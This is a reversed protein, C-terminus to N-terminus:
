GGTGLDTGADLPGWDCPLRCSGIICLGLGVSANSCSPEAEMNPCTRSSAGASCVCAILDACGKSYQQVEASCHAELCQACTNGAAAGQSFVAVVSCIGSSELGTGAGDCAAVIVVAGALASSAVLAVM